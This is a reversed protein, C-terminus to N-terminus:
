GEEELASLATYVSGVNLDPAGTVALWHPPVPVAIIVGASSQVCLSRAEGHRLLESGAGAVFRGVAEPQPLEGRVRRVAGVADFLATGQVGELAALALLVREPDGRLAPTPRRQASRRSDGTALAPTPRPLTSRLASSPPPPPPSADFPLAIEASAFLDLTDGKGTSRERAALARLDRVVRGLERKLGSRPVIAKLDRYVPGILVDVMEGASVADPSRKARLLAADLIRRAARGPVLGAIGSRAREYVDNRTM